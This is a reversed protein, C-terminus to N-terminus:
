ASDANYLAAGSSKKESDSPFSSSFGWWPPHYPAWMPTFRMLREWDTRCSKPFGTPLLSTSFTLMAWFNLPRFVFMVGWLVFALLISLYLRNDKAHAKM